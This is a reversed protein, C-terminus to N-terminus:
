KAGWAVMFQVVICRARIQSIILDSRVHQTAGAGVLLTVYRHFQSLVRRDANYCFLFARKGYRCSMTRKM